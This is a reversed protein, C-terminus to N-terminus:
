SINYPFNGIIAMKDGFILSFDLKLFDGQILKSGLDPYRQSLYSISEADIDILFTEFNEQDLLFDTLIGMGPGVELVQQYGLSPTLANVIREAAKKDNLFHQGLHKKARVSGM